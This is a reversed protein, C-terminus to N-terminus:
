YSECLTWAYWIVISYHNDNDVWVYNNFMENTIFCGLYLPFHNQAGDTSLVVYLIFVTVVIKSWSISIWDKTTFAKDFWVFIKHNSTKWNLSFYLSIWTNKLKKKLNRLKTHFDFLFFPIDYKRLFDFGQIMGLQVFFYSKWVVRVM